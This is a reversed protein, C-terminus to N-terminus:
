LNKIDKFTDNINKIKKRKTIYQSKICRLNYIYIYINTSFKKEGMKVSM